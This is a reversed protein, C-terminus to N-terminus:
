KSCSLGGAHVCSAYRGGHLSYEKQQGVQTGGGPPTGPGPYGGPPSRVRTGGRPPYGSRLVGGPPTGSRPVGRPPVRVQTGGWPPYRVLGGRGGGRHVSLCRHFCYRGTTSRATVIWQDFGPKSLTFYPFWAFHRPVYSGNRTVAWTRLIVPLYYNWKTQRDVGPPPPDPYVGRPPVWTLYGGPPYGPWTGGRPPVWTLYGRPTGPDPVGQPTRPPYGPWTGGRPYGPWTGGRPTRPTVRTLYGGPPTGPDPVGGSPTRPTGPDPVRGRPTCPPVQTLYGGPPHVRTLYGGPPTGPTLYGGPPPVRTPCCFSYESCPPRYAEQTWAPPSEQIKHFKAFFHKKNNRTSQHFENWHIKWWTNALLRAVDRWYWSSHTRHGNGHQHFISESSSLVCDTVIQSPPLNWDYFNTISFRCEVKFGHYRKEVHLILRLTKPM